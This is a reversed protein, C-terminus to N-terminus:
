EFDYDLKVEDPTKEARSHKIKASTTQKARTPPQPFSAKQILTIGNPSLDAVYEINNQSFWMQTLDPTVEKIIPSTFGRESLSDVWTKSLTLMNKQGRAEAYEDVDREEDPHKDMWNPTVGGTRGKYKRQSPPENKLMAQIPGEEVEDGEDEGFNDGGFDAGEMGEEGMQEQMEAQQQMQEMQQQQEQIAMAQQEAAMKATPMPEGSVIFDAEWIPVDQEKLKIDFGLQSFQNVIQIKQQAFSLRTNEAKEEPQPLQIEYDEIGFADLLQPFVKSTFCVNTGKLL